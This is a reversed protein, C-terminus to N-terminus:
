TTSGAPLSITASSMQLEAGAPINTTSVITEAGSTGVNNRWVEVDDRNLWLARAAIGGVTNTDAAIANATAVGNSADAFADVSLNHTSVTVDSSTALRVKGAANTTGANLLATIANVAANRAATSVTTGM